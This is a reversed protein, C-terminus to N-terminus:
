LILKHTFCLFDSVLIDAIALHLLLFNMNTFNNRRNRLSMLQILVWFNGIASIVMVISVMSITLISHTGFMMDEALYPKSVNTVNPNNEDSINAITDDDTIATDPVDLSLIITSNADTEM